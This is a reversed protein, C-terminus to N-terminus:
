KGQGNQKSASGNDNDAASNNKGHIRGRVLRDNNGRLRRRRIVRGPGGGARVVRGGGRHGGGIGIRSWRRRGLGIGAAPGASIASIAPIAATAGVSPLTAAAPLAHLLHEGLQAQAGVLLLLDIRNAGIGAEAALVTASRDHLDESGVLLRLVLLQASLHTGLASIALAAASWSALTTTSLATAAALRSVAGLGVLRSATGVETPLRLHGPLTLRRGAGNEM